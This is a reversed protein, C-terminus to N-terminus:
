DHAEAAAPPLELEAKIRLPLNLNELVCLLKKAAAPRGFQIRWRTALRLARAASARVEAIEILEDEEACLLSRGGV